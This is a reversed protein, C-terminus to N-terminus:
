PSRRTTSSRSPSTPAPRWRRGSPWRARTSCPGTGSTRSSTRRDRHVAGHGGVAGGRGGHPHPGDHRATWTSPWAMAASAPPPSPARPCSRPATTPAARASTPSAPWRSPSRGNACPRWCRWAPPSRSSTCAASWGRPWSSPSATPTSSAAPPCWRRPGRRRVQGRRSAARAQNYLIDRIFLEIFARKEEIVLLEELGRAFERVIGAELPFLMGIKLLRIGYRRLAAEDLGLDRLAERLDYYTKGPAAIGLWADPTPVTIRNIGNAAAFARAAELRGYQIVRETELGFPPMLMPAQQAQWPRGEFVFGPDRMVIRGPSVEATSIEDAVNTVIKFAVWLGSYRSLEFGLRGLDLIEQVSGPFLVPMLADYFAVESHSPLTSSKSLPDDGGLALVGGHRGVGAYNAHKFIDGSRDVGPSKGYWMGLVGDYKPRPFLNALQSGYVATAGLDENVGSVFVVHHDRLLAANRELAQDFGGLPSGRYGSILTATNLGRRQDALHQEVPLRVLAQIGSLFITGEETRYKAELTFDRTTIM